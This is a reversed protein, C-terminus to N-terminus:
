AVGPYMGIDSWGARRAAACRTGCGHLALLRRALFGHSRQQLETPVLNVADHLPRHLAAQLAALRLQHALHTDILLSKPLSVAIQRQHIIQPSLAHQIPGFVALLAAQVSEPFGQRHLLDAADLGNGPVHPVRVDSRYPLVHWFGIALDDECTESPGM